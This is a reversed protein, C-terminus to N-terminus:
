NVAINKLADILKPFRFSFGRSLLKSPLVHQSGFLLISREGLV